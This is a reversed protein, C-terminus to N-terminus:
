EHVSACDPMGNVQPDALVLSAGPQAACLLESCLLSLSEPGLYTVYFCPWWPENMLVAHQCLTFPAPFLVPCLLPVKVLYHLRVGKHM